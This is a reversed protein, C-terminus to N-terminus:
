RRTEAVIRRWHSSIGVPLQNRGKESKVGLTLEQYPEPAFNSRGDAGENSGSKEKPPGWLSSAWILVLPFGMREFTNETAACNTRQNSTITNALKGNSATSFSSSGVFKRSPIPFGNCLLLAPPTLLLPFKGVACPNGCPTSVRTFKVPCKSAWPTSLLPAGCWIHSYLMTPLEGSWPPVVVMLAGMTATVM